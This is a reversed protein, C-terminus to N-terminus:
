NNGIDKQPIELALLLHRLLEKENAFHFVDNNHVNKLTARWYPQGEDRQLRLMYARYQNEDM